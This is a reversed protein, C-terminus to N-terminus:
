ELIKILKIYLSDSYTGTVLHISRNFGFLQCAVGRKVYCEEYYESRIPKHLAAELLEYM